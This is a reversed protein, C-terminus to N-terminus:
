IKNKRSKIMKLFNELVKYGQNNKTIEPHFQVGYIPKRRHKVAEIGDKSKALVELNKGVKVIDWEHDEFIRMEKPCNRFIDDKKKIKIKIIGKELHPMEKIKAGYAHCIVEFGLCIGFLPLKTKKVLNAERLFEKSNDIYRIGIGGSLIVANVRKTDELKVKRFDKIKYGFGKKELLSCIQKIFRTNNDIILIM